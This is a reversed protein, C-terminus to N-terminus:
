NTKQKKFYRSNPEGNPILAGNDDLFGKTSDNLEIYIGGALPDARLLGLAWVFNGTRDIIANKGNLRVPCVNGVFSYPYDPDFSPKIVWKGSSDIFGYRGEFIVGALGSSFEFWREFLPKIVVQGSTDCAGWKEGMKFATLGESFPNRKDPYLSIDGVIVRGNSFRVFASRDPFCQNSRLPSLYIEVKSTSQEIIQPVPIAGASM